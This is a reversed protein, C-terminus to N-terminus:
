SKRHNMLIDFLSQRQLDSSVNIFLFDQPIEPYRVTWITKIDTEKM